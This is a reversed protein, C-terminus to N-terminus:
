DSRSLLPVLGGVLATFPWALMSAFSKLELQADVHAGVPAERLAATPDGPGLLHGTAKMLFAAVVCGVVTLLLTVLEDRRRLLAFGLGGVLGGVAAIVAYWGDVAFLRSLQLEDQGINHQYRILQPPTAVRAWVVGAIVGLLAMGGVIVAVDALVETVSVKPGTEGHDEPYPPPWSPDV